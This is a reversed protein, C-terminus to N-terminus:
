LRSRSRRYRKDIKLGFRSPASGGVWHRPVFNSPDCGIDCLQWRLRIPRLGLGDFEKRSHACKIQFGKLDAKM